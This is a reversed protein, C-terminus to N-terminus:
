DGACRGHLDPPRLQVPEHYFCVPGELQPLAPGGYAMFQATSRRLVQHNEDILAKVLDMKNPFHYHIAANKVGMPESIDRYSFGNLGRQLM